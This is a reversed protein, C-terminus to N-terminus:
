RWEETRDGAKYIWGGPQTSIDGDLQRSEIHCPTWAAKVVM